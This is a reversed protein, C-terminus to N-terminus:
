SYIFLRKDLPVCTKVKPEAMSKGFVMQAVLQWNSDINWKEAISRDILPNYHQITVGLGEACLASWVLSSSILMTSPFSELQSSVLM